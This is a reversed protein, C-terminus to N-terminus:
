HSVYWIKCASCLIMPSGDDGKSCFCLVSKLSKKAKRHKVNSAKTAKEKAEKGEHGSSIDMDQQANRSDKLNRNKHLKLTPTTHPVKSVGSRTRSRTSM